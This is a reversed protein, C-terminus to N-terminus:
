KQRAEVVIAVPESEYIGFPIPHPQILLLAREHDALGREPGEFRIDYRVVVQYRGPETPRWDLMYHSFSGKGFPDIVAGPALVVFDKAELPNVLGCRGVAPPTVLSGDAKRIEISIKPTRWAVDSADLSRLVSVSTDGLNQIAYSVPLPKGVVGNGRVDATIKIVPSRVVRTAMPNIQKLCRVQSRELAVPNPVFIVGALVVAVGLGATGLGWRM